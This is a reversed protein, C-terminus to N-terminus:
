LLAIALLIAGVSGAIIGVWIKGILGFYIAINDGFQETETLLRASNTKLHVAYGWGALTLILWLPWIASILEM